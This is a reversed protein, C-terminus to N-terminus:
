LNVKVLPYAWTPFLPLRTRRCTICKIRYITRAERASTRLVEGEIIIQAHAPVELDCTECKVLEVPKGMMLGALDPEPISSSACSAIASIPDPGIVMAFHLTKGEFSCNGPLMKGMDSFPLLPGVLTKSDYVAIQYTGWNVDGNEPDKAVVFHWTDLYRGGDGELTMPVPLKLLDVGDGTIIREKCLAESKDILKPSIPTGTSRKLHEATIQPIPAKSDLGLITALRPYTALTDGFYGRNEKLAM